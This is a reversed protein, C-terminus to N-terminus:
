LLRDSDLFHVTKFVHILPHIAICSRVWEHLAEKTDLDISKNIITDISERALLYYSPDQFHSEDPHMGLLILLKFLFAIKFEKGHPIKFEEYLQYILNFIEPATSGFPVCMYCIELVHHLFLIDDKALWLPVDMLSITHLFYVPGRAQAYYSLLSGCTFNDHPPVGEIKGLQQDLVVMKMKKPFFTKLIIGTKKEMGCGLLISKTMIRGPM